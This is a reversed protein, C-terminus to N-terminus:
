LKGFFRDLNQIFIWGGVLFFATLALAYLAAGPQFGIGIANVWFGVVAVVSVPVAVIPEPRLISIRPTERLRRRFVLILYGSFVFAATASSLRWITSDPLGTFSLAAPLLGFAAVALGGEILFRVLYTHISGLEVGLARRLAVIVGSFGVFSVALGSLRLLYDSGVLTM